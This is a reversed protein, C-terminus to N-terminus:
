EAHSVVFSRLQGRWLRRMDNQRSSFPFTLHRDLSDNQMMTPGEANCQMLSPDIIQDGCFVGLLTRQELESDRWPEIGARVVVGFDLLNEVNELSLKIQAATLLGNTATRSSAYENRGTCRMRESVGT